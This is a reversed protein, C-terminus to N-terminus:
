SFHKLKEETFPPEDLASFLQWKGDLTSLIIKLVKLYSVITSNSKQGHPVNHELATLRWWEPEFRWTILWSYTLVWHASLLCEFLVWLAILSCDSHLWLASMADFYSDNCDSGLISRRTLFYNVKFCKATCHDLSSPLELSLFLKWEWQERAAAWEM